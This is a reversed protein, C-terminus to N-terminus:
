PKYLSLFDEIIIDTLDQLKCMGKQFFYDYSCKDKYDDFLNGTLIMIKSTFDQRILKIIEVGNEDPLRLDVIIYDFQTHKQREEYLNKYAEVGTGVVICKIGYNELEEKIFSTIDKNDEIVLVRM